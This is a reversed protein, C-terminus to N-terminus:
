QRQRGLRLRQAGCAVLRMPEGWVDMSIAILYSIADEAAPGPEDAASRALDLTAYEIALRGWADPGDRNM